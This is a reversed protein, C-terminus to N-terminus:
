VPKESCVRELLAISDEFSKIAKKRKESKGGPGVFESTERLKSLAVPENVTNGRLASEFEKVAGNLYKEIASLWERLRKSDSEKLLLNSSQHHSRKHAEFKLQVKNLRQLQEIYPSVLLVEKSRVDEPIERLALARLLRKIEKYSNYADVLESHLRLLNQRHEERTERRRTFVRYLWSVAGGVVVLLFFQYTTQYLDNDFYDAWSNSYILLIAAVILSALTITLVVVQELFM